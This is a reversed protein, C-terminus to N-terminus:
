MAKTNPRATLRISCTSTISYVLRMISSYFCVVLRSDGTMKAEYIPVQAEDTLPKQNDFSFHGNSLARSIIPM